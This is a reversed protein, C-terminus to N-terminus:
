FEKVPVGLKKSLDEAEILMEGYLGRSIIIPDGSDPVILKIQFIETYINDKLSHKSVFHRVPSITIEKIEPLDKWSGFKLIYIFSLYSRYRHGMFEIQVGYRGSLTFVSILFIVLGLISISTDRDLGYFFAGIGIVMVILIIARSGTPFFPKINKKYM